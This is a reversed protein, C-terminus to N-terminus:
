KMREEAKRGPKKKKYDRGLLASIKEVFDPSGLPRGTRSYRRLDALEKEEERAPDMLFDEWPGTADNPLPCAPDLLPDPKGQIRSAASSWPWAEPESVM